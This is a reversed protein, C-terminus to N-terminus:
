EVRLLTVEAPAQYRIPALTMGLGNDISVFTDGTKFFGTVYRTEFSSGTLLFGPLPFAIQGGHTHGGLFLHYGAKGAQQVLWTSPQHTLLIQLGSRPRSSMLGEVQGATARKAYVNTLGTVCVEASGIPVTVSEDRIVKIGNRRLSAAVLEPDSFYDHDGLCAYVGFRARLRGMAEAAQAIYGTGNSVLDGCFFILDPDHSNAADIYRQLKAGNTHRDVHVDSIQVIKLHKLDDPLGAIGVTAERHRVRLTDSWVRYACYLPILVALLLTLLSRLRAGNHKRYPALLLVTAADMPLFFISLQVAIVVGIWFPYALLVDPVTEASQSHPRGLFMGGLQWLPYAMPYLLVALLIIRIKSRSWGTVLVLAGAIRFATYLQIPASILGLLAVMRIQWPM